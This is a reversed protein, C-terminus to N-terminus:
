YRVMIRREKLRLVMANVLVIDAGRKLGSQVKRLVMLFAKDRKMMINIDINIDKLLENM